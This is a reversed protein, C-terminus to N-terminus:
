LKKTFICRLFLRWCRNSRVICSLMTRLWILFFITQFPYILFPTSLFPPLYSTLFKYIDVRGFRSFRDCNTSEQHTKQVHEESVLSIHEMRGMVGRHTGNEGDCWSTNWEGWWVVIHEMRGMVGRHAMWKGNTVATVADQQDLSSSSVACHSDYLM